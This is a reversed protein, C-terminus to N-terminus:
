QITQAVANQELIRGKRFQGLFLRLQDTLYFLPGPAKEDFPRRPRPLGYHQGVQRGSETFMM